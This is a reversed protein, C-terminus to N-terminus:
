LSRRRALSSAHPTVRDLQAAQKKAQHSDFLALLYAHGAARQRANAGGAPNRDPDAGADLLLTAMRLIHTKNKMDALPALTELATAGWQNQVHPNAGQALLDRVFSPAIYQVAAFLPGNNCGPKADPSAGQQLLYAVMARSKGEIAKVLPTHGSRSAESQPADVHAGHGLLYEVLPLSGRTCARHLLTDGVVEEKGLDVGNEVLIDLLRLATDWEISQPETVLFVIDRALKDLLNRDHGPRALEAELQARFAGADGARVVDQLFHAYNLRM